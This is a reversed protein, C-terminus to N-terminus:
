DKPTFEGVALAGTPCIAICEAAAHQLGNLISENFPVAVRTQYGRGIFTLGLEENKQQAVRICLGCKICKGPEFVVTGEEGILEIHKREDASFTRQDAGYQQAYDRLKCKNPKRCDCHLCRGAEQAPDLKVCLSSSCSSLHQASDAKHDKHNGGAGASPSCNKLLENLESERLKGIKSDFRAECEPERRLSRDLAAAAAKGNAVAKVALKHEEPEIIASFIGQQPAVGPAFAIGSQRMFNIEADLVSRPLEPEALLAGGLESSSDFVTCTYGLLRLQWAAALGAAGSGVVAVMGVHKIPLNLVGARRQHLSRIPITEDLQGRRCGRECPAPCIHSLIHPIALDRQAIWAAEEENGQALARLMSPIDLHAPCIRTCPAECDGVHECLLLNLIDRRANQVEDCETDIEMGEVAKASCAPILQGSAVDKVVCLMCATEPTCGPLHCLTPIDVSVLAAAELVTADAEVRAPLGDIKLDPM